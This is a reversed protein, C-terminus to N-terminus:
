FVAVYSLVIMLVIMVMTTLLMSRVGTYVYQYDTNFDNAKRQKSQSTSGTAARQPASSSSPVPEGETQPRSQATKGQKERIAQRKRRSLKAM